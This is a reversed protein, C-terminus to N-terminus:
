LVSLQSRLSCNPHFKENSVSIIVPCSLCNGADRFWRRKWKWLCCAGLTHCGRLTHACPWSSTGELMWRCGTSTCGECVRVNVQLALSKRSLVSLTYLACSRSLSRPACSDRCWYLSRCLLSLELQKSDGQTRVIRRAVAWSSCLLEDSPFTRYFVSLWRM